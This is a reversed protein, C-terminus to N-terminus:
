KASLGGDIPLISGTIYSSKSSFLFMVLNVIDQSEAIRGLPHMEGYKKILDEKPINKREHSIMVAPSIANIRINHKAEELAVAKTFGNVAFKSASYASIGKNNTRIGSISSLNIISGFANQRMLLIEYKVAMFITYLNAQIVKNFEDLNMDTIFSKYTLGVANFAYDIRKFKQSIHTFFGSVEEELLLDVMYYYVNPKRLSSHIKLVVDKSRRGCGIITCGEDLLKDTLELGVLSTIGTIFVIRNTFESM